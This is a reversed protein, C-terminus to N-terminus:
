SSDEYLGPHLYLRRNFGWNDVSSTQVRFRAHLRKDVLKFLKEVHCDHARAAFVECLAQIYWSGAAPDRYSVTGPLTSHAILIDSYLRDRETGPSRPPAAALARADSVAGRGAGAESREANAESRESGIVRGDREAGREGDDEPNTFHIPGEIYDKNSGRCLQFIFVKPIGHLAPFNKNSFHEIIEHSSILCGDSCRIDTDSTAPREYGHSSVVIFVCEVNVIVEKLYKLTKLTEDLTLNNYSLVKFGMEPFLYKLKQCDVDVGKRYEEINFAFEIYSLVVLIGRSRGRTRYLKIDDGDEFFKTSKQVVHYYPDTSLYNAETNIIPAENKNDDPRTKTKKKETSISVYNNDNPVNTSPVSVKTRRTHLSSNPDLERVLDWYGADSLVDLLHGFAEPGRRTIDMYLERKRVRPHKSTDKYPEIMQESFVGKEYLATVMHDLDTQEVLPVFNNQIARRHKEEM